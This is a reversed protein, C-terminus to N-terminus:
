NALLPNTLSNPCRGDAKPELGNCCPIDKCCDRAIEGAEACSKSRCGKNTFATSQELALFLSVSFGKAKIKISFEGESIPEINMKGNDWIVYLSVPYPSSGKVSLCKKNLKWSKILPKAEM